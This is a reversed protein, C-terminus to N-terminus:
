RWDGSLQFAAWFYPATRQVTGATKTTPNVLKSQQILGRTSAGDVGIEELEKPHRLMWLQAERLADIRSMDEQWLNEYFRRMLEQTARDDVEWLSAVVSRAGAIHFARQLGTLGEGGAVAGLGTECASLVVLDVGQMSSAAIESARLIGDRADDVHQSPNNAGAMVLGSLLGPLYAHFYSEPEVTESRDRDSELAVQSISRVDPDAFYGHTIIHIVRHASAQQLFSEETAEHRSLVTPPSSQGFERRYQQRVTDLEERFGSLSAWDRNGARLGRAEALLTGEGNGPVASDPAAEYDIDGVLLLGEATSRSDTQFLTPLLSAMPLLAIRYDEILYTDATRGPIVSFPLTGLMGDPSIIVTNIGNLHQEIPQWLLQRLHQAAVSATERSDPQLLDPTLGRRLDTIAEEISDTSQLSVMKADGRPPVVFAVFRREYIASGKEHPDPSVQTYELLDVFAADDALFGQVADVTLPERISRFEESHAAIRQEIIERSRTLESFEGLWNNKREAFSAMRGADSPDAPPNPARQSHRSLRRSLLQLEALAPALTPHTALRRYAQQRQTVAGKWRWVDPLVESASTGSLLAASIRTNMSSRRSALNRKQQRESQIVSNDELHNLIIELSEGALGEAREYDGTRICFRAFSELCSAYSLDQDGLASRLISTAQGYLSEAARLHGLNQEVGALNGLSVGYHPHAEGLVTRRIEVAERLLPEARAYDHMARCVVGLNNLSRAYTLNEEGFLTRNIELAKAFCPEASRYDGIHRYLDGLNALSIAYDPHNEGWASKWIESARRIAPEAREFDGMDKYLVGLNNLARAFEPDAAGANERIIDAAQGYLPAAKALDGLEKYVAGLNLLAQGYEPHQEGRVTRVVESTRRLLPVARTHEGSFMYVIARNSLSQAFHPHLEGLGAREIEIAQELMQGARTTDGLRLYVSALNNISQATDTHTEGLLSRRVKLVEEGIRVAEAYEGARQLQIHELNADEAERLRQRDSETLAAPPGTSKVAISSLSVRGAEAQVRIGRVTAPGNEIHAALVPSQGVEVVVLGHRYEVTIADPKSVPWPVERVVRPPYENGNEDTDVLAVKSSVDSDDAVGRVVRVYCDTAEDLLFWIRLESPAPAWAAFGVESKVWAGANVSREISAGESLTLRGSKWVLDGDSEYDARTDSSFDDSFVRELQPPKQQLALAPRSQVAAFFLCLITVPITRM